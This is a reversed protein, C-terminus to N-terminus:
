PIFVPFRVRQGAGAGNVFATLTVTAGTMPSM